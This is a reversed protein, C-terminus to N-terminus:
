EDTEEEGKDDSKRGQLEDVTEQGKEDKDDPKGGQLEDVTKQGEFKPREEGNDASDEGM